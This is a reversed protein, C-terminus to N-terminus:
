SPDESDTSDPEVDSATLPPRSLRHMVFLKLLLLMVPLLVALLIILALYITQM